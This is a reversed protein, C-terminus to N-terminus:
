LVIGVPARDLETRIWLGATPILTATVPNICLAYSFHNHCHTVYFHRTACFTKLDQRWLGYVVAKCMPISVSYLNASNKFWNIILCMFRSMVYGPFLCSYQLKSDHKSSHLSSQAAPLSAWSQWNYNCLLQTQAKETQILILHMVSGRWSVCLSFTLLIELSTIYVCSMHEQMDHILVTTWLASLTQTVMRVTGSHRVLYVKLTTSTRIHLVETLILFSNVSSPISDAV